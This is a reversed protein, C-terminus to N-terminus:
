EPKVEERILRVIKRGDLGTLRRFYESCFFGEAEMIRAAGGSGKRLAKVYDEAAQRVVAGILQHAGTDDMLRCRDPDPNLVHLMAEGATRDWYQEENKWIM